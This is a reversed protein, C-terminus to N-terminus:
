KTREFKSKDIKVTDCFNTSSWYCNKKFDYNVLDEYCSYSLFKEKSIIKFWYDYPWKDEVWDDTEECYGCSAWSDYMTQEYEICKDLAEQESNAEVLYPHEYPGSVYYRKM